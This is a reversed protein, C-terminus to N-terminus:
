GPIQIGATILFGIFKNDSLESQDLLLVYYLSAVTLWCLLIILTKYRLNVGNRFLDIQTYTTQTKGKEEEEKITDEM